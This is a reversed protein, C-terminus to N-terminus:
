FGNSGIIAHTGEEIEGGNLFMAIMTSIVSAAEHERGSYDTLWKVIIMLDMYGFLALLLIIQPLFESFMDLNNKFYYANFAKMVVGLAM